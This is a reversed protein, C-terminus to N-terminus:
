GWGRPDTRIAVEAPTGERKAVLVFRDNEQVIVEVDHIVHERVVCFQRPDNRIREYEDRMVAMFEDCKEYGCECVIHIFSSDPLSEHTQDIQENIERAVAENKAIREERFGMVTSGDREQIASWRIGSTAGRPVWIQENVVRKM